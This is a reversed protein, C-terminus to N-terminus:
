LCDTEPGHLTKRQGQADFFLRSISSTIGLSSFLIGGATTESSEEESSPAMGLAFDIKEFGKGGQSV